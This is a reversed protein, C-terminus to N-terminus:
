MAKNARVISAAPPAPQVSSAAPATGWPRSDRATGPLRPTRVAATPRSESPPPISHETTSSLDMYVYTSLNGIDM